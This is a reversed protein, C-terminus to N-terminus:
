SGSLLQGLILAIFAPVGFISAILVWAVLRVRRRRLGMSSPPPDIRFEEPLADLNGEQHELVELARALDEDRVLVEFTRDTAFPTAVSNAAPDYSPVADVGASALVGCAVDAEFKSGYAAVPVLGDLPIPVPADDCVGVERREGNIAADGAM